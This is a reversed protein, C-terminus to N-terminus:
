VHLEKFSCVYKKTKYYINTLIETKFKEKTNNKMLYKLFSKKKMLKGLKYRIKSM